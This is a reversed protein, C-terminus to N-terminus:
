KHRTRRRFNPRYKLLLYQNDVEGPDRHSYGLRPKLAVKPKLLEAMREVLDKTKM